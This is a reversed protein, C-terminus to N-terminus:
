LGLLERPPMRSNASVWLLVLAEHAASTLFPLVKAGLVTDCLKRESEADALDVNM